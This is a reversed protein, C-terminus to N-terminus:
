EGPDCLEILSVLADLPDEDKGSRVLAIERVLSAFDLVGIRSHFFAWHISSWDISILQFVQLGGGLGFVHLFLSPCVSFHNELSFRADRRQWRWFSNRTPLRSAEVQDGLHGDWSSAYRCEGKDWAFFILHIFISLTHYFWTVWNWGFDFYVYAILRLLEFLNSKYSVSTRAMDGRWTVANALTRRVGSTTFAKKSGGAEQAPCSSTSFWESTMSWQWTQKNSRHPLCKGCILSCRSCGFFIM